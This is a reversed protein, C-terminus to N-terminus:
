RRVIIIFFFAANMTKDVNATAAMLEDSQAAVLEITEPSLSVGSREIAVAPQVAFLDRLHSDSVLARVFNALEIREVDTVSIEVPRAKEATPM